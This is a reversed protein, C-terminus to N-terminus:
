RLQGSTPERNPKLHARCVPMTPAVRKLRPLDWKEIRALHGLQAQVRGTSAQQLSALADILLTRYKREPAFDGCGARSKQAYATAIQRVAKRAAPGSAAVAQSSTASALQQVLSRAAKRNLYSAQVVAAPRVNRVMARVTTTYQASPALQHVPTPTPTVTGGGIPVVGIVYLVLVICAIAAAGIGAVVAQASVHSREPMHFTSWTMGRRPPVERVPDSVEKTTTGDRRAAAGDGIAARGDKTAALITAANATEQTSWQGKYLDVTSRVREEILLPRIAHTREERPPWGFKWAHANRYSAIRVAAVAFDLPPSPLASLEALMTLPDDFLGSMDVLARDLRDRITNGILAVELQPLGSGAVADRVVILLRRTLEDVDSMGARQLERLSDAAGQLDADNFGGSRLQEMVQQLYQLSKQSSIEGATGIGSDQDARFADRPHGNWVHNMIRAPATILRSTSGKRPEDLVKQAKGSGRTDRVGLQGDPQSEDGIPRSDGHGNTTSDLAKLREEREAIGNNLQALLEMKQQITTDLEDVQIKLNDIDSSYKRKLRVRESKVEESLGNKEERLAVVEAEIANRETKLRILTKECKQKETNFTNVFKTREEKVRQLEASVHRYETQVRELAGKTDNYVTQTQRLTLKTTELAESQRLADVTTGFYQGLMELLERDTELLIKGLRTLPATEGHARWVTDLAQRFLTLNNRITLNIGNPIDPENTLAWVLAETVATLELRFSFLKLTEPWDLQLWRRLYDADEDRGSTLDVIPCWTQLLFIRSAWTFTVRPSEHRGESLLRLLRRLLRRVEQDDGAAISRLLSVASGVDRKTRAAASEVADSRFEEVLAPLGLAKGEPSDVENKFRPWLARWPTPDDEIASVLDARFDPRSLLSQAFSPMPLYALWPDVPGLPESGDAQAKRDYLGALDHTSRPGRRQAEVLLRPRKGTRAVEEVAKRAYNSLAAEAAGFRTKKGTYTNLGYNGNGYCADPLDFYANAKIAQHDPPKCTAVIQVPAEWVDHEYTSFTLGRSDDPDAVLTLGYLLTAMQDPRIALFIRARMESGVYAQILFELCSQMFPDQMARLFYDLNKPNLPGPTLDNESVMPLTTDPSVLDRDACQWFGSRWLQIAHHASFSPPLGIVFHSFYVGPRNADDRGAYARHVLLRDSGRDILTLSRPASEAAMANADANEPLDYRGLPLIPEYRAPSRLGNSAARVQWGRSGRLGHHSWTFYLQEM